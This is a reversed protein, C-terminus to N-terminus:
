VIFMVDTKMRNRIEFCPTWKAIGFEGSVIYCAVYANLLSCVLEQKRSTGELQCIISM